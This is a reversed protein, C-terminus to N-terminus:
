RRPQSPAPSNPRAPAPQRPQTRSGAAAPQNPTGFDPIPAAQDPSTGNRLLNRASDAPEPVQLMRFQSLLVRRAQQAEQESIQGDGNADIVVFVMHAPAEIAKNFETQSIMGNHDADAAQFATQAASRAMGIIAANVESPSMQGDRNTDATEYISQVTTQVAKRVESAQLQKDQNNDLLSMLARNPNPNSGGAQGGTNTENKTRELVARLIPKQQLLADRAQRAEEQSVTGDGNADARFFYGGVLLNGADIAEKQSILGDNNLDALKFLMKGADQLDQLSDIPGPLDGPKHEEAAPRAAPQGPAPAPQRPPVGAPENQAMTATGTLALGMGSAALAKMWFNLM